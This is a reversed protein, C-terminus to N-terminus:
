AADAVWNGHFGLPVRVPLDIRAQAGGEIDQANLIVLSSRNAGLDYSYALLWGDDEADSGPRPVFVAESPTHHAGFDHQSVRGTQLDHRYLPQASTQQVDLGVTYAYRYPRGTRREDCRPFEQKHDSWVDRRVHSSAPEMRWREFQTASSELGQRSRNFLRPYAVVDVVVGGDDLDYANAAHFAYCPDVDFWRVESAAGTRPLLGVRAPHRPNWRYPFVTGRLLAGFSFTIPLDFIVVYRATIACDHIMPGHRVPIAVDRTVAGQADIVVYRVQNRVLSDYCIAHLEGTQPDRHPHATYANSVTDEFYGHRITNLEEDLQVPLAGAEVLAWLRGHHGIVNTNVVDAMGRRPGAALSRGLRRNVSDTGVWRNRYWLAAGERLRLGHVMGDGVFWHYIAPNGVQLPNPGIRVLTGNLERPITGSVALRSETTEAAVPAYPGELYPNHNSYPVRKQLQRATWAVANEILRETGM